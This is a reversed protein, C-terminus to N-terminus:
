LLFKHMIIKTSQDNITKKGLIFELTDVDLKDIEKKINDDTHNNGIM